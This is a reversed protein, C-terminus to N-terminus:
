LAKICIQFVCRKSGQLVSEKLETDVAKGLITEYMHKQWGMSCHCFYAPTLKSNVLKCDCDRERTVVDIVGKEKDYTCTEGLKQNLFKFFGEPNGKYREGWGLSKACNRGLQELIERRKADDLHSELLEWLSALQKAAHDLWWKCRNHETRLERLKKNEETDNQAGSSSDGFMVSAACSCMGMGCARNLLERRNM